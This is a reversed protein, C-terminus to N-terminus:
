FPLKAEYVPLPATQKPSLQLHAFGTFTISVWFQPHLPVRELSAKVALKKQSLFM